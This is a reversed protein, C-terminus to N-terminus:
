LYEAVVAVVVSEQLRLATERGELRAVVVAEVELFTLGFFEKLAFGRVPLRSDSAGM